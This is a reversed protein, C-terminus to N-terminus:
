KMHVAFRCDPAGSIASQLLEVRLTRGLVEEWYAKIFGESCHCYTKSLRKKPPLGRLLSCYCRMPTVFTGPIYIHILLDGKRELRMGLPPNKQEADIFEDDNSYRSRREIASGVVEQYEDCCNKGCAAMIETSLEADVTKDLRNMAGQLWLATEAGDQSITLKEVGAM